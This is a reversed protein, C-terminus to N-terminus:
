GRRSAKRRGKEDDGHAFTRLFPGFGQLPVRSAGTGPRFAQALSFVLREAYTTGFVIASYRPAPLCISCIGVEALRRGGFIGICYSVIGGTAGCLAAARITRM